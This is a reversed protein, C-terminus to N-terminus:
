APPNVIGSPDAGDDGPCAPAPQAVAPAAVPAPEPSPTSEPIPGHAPTPEPAPAPHPPPQLLEMADLAARAAQQEADKKTRGQGPGYLAGQFQVTVEFWKMHDPGRAGTVRYVPVCGLQKQTFHQLISKYNLDYRGEVVERICSELGNLVFRRAAELGGDRYIAAVLAEYTNGLVSDPLSKRQSIGKGLRIVEAVGLRRSEKALMGCSVVVSKIASLQGEEYDVFNSFLYDSVIMGLVADGLFEMRENCPLGEERASSHVLANHLWDLNRFRYAIADQIREISEPAFDYAAHLHPDV